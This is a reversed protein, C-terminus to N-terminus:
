NRARITYGAGRVTEIVGKAGASALKRRLYHVYLDVVNGEPEADYGWVRELIQDRTLVRGANRLLMELLAFEKPSLDVVEGRVDVRRVQQDLTVDGARLQDPLV